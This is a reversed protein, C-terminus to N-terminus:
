ISLGVSKEEIPARDAWRVGTVVIRGSGQTEKLEVRLLVAPNEDASVPKKVILERMTMQPRVLETEPHAERVFKVLEPPDVTTINYHSDFRVGAMKCLALM